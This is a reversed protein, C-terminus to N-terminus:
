DCSFQSVLHALGKCDEVSEDTECHETTFKKAKKMNGNIKKLETALSDQAASGREAVNGMQTM